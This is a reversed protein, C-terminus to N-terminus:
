FYTNPDIFTNNKWAQTTSSNMLNALSSGSTGAFPDSSSTYNGSGGGGGANGGGGGPGGYAGIGGAAGSYQYQVRILKVASCDPCVLVAESDMSSHVPRMGASIWNHQCIVHNVASNSPQYNPNPTMVGFKTKKKAVSPKTAQNFAQKLKEIGTKEVGPNPGVPGSPGYGVGNPLITSM